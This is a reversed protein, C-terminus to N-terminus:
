GCRRLHPAAQSPSFIEREHRSILATNEQEEWYARRYEMGYKETFGEVQGHGFMPLGPMTVLLTCVGFYKDGTGFQAIATDEDPNNM